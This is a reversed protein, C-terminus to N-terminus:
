HTTPRGQGASDRFAMLLAGTILILSAVLSGTAAAIAGYPGVGVLCVVVGALAAFGIVLGIRRVNYAVAAFRVAPRAAGNLWQVGLLLAYSTWNSDYPAGFLKLTAPALVLLPLVFACSYCVSAALQGTLRRHNRQSAGDSESILDGGVLNLAPLFFEIIMALRAAVAYQAMPLPTACVSLICLPGWLQAGRALGFLELSDVARLQERSVPKAREESTTPFVRHALVIAAAAAMISGVLFAWSYVVLSANQPALIVALLISVNVAYTAVVIGLTRNAARLAEGLLSSLSVAPLALVFPLYTQLVTQLQPAQIDVDATVVLLAACVLSSRLLARRALQNLIAGDSLGVLISNKNIIYRAIYIEYKGRLVSSLSLAIVFGRFYIGADEPTLVRILALTALVQLAAGLLRLIVDTPRIRQSEIADAPVSADQTM